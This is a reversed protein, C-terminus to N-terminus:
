YQAAGVHRDVPSIIDTCNPTTIAYRIGLHDMMARCFPTIQSTHGDMGLLVEGLDLTAARFAILSDIIIKESAWANPQFRNILNEFKALEDL